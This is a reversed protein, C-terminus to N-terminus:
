EILKNKMFFYVLQARNKLNLRNSLRIVGNGVSRHTHKLKEGIEKDTLGRAIYGVVRIETASVSIFPQEMLKTKLLEEGDYKVTYQLM